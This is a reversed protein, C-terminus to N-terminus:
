LGGQLVEFMDDPSWIIGVLAGANFMTDLFALQEPSPRGPERSQVLRGTKTSITLWEPQKCEIYLARGGPLTGIIDSLGAFSAGAHGRLYQRSDSVGGQKLARGIQGRMKAGGADVALAPIRHLNLTALANKQVTAESVCGLLYADNYRARDFARRYPRRNRQHLDIFEAGMSSGAPLDVLEGNITQLSM